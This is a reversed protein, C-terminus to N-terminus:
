SSCGGLLHGRPYSISRGGLGPQPITTYNWNFITNGFLNGLLFPVISDTVGENSVGAELVLVSYEPNETLRNAVTLGATGGGIIVFDHHFTPLNSANEYIA